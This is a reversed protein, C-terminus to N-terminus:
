YHPQDIEENRCEETLYWTQDTGQNDKEDEEEECGEEVIELLANKSTDYDDAKPPSQPLELVDWSFPTGTFVISYHPQDRHWSCSQDAHLQAEQDSYNKWHGADDKLGLIRLHTISKIRISTKFASLQFSM